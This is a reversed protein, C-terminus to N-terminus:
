HIVNAFPDTTGLGGGSNGTFGTSSNGTMLTGLRNGSVVSVASTCGAFSNGVILSNPQVAQVGIACSRIANGEIHARINCVIGVSGATATSRHVTNDKAMGNVSLGITNNFATCGTITGPGVSIGTANDSATCGSISGTGVSFGTGGNGAATSATVSADSTDLGDGGNGNFVCAHVMSAGNLSSIFLGTSQNGQFTCGTANCDGAKAGYGGNDNCQLNDLRVGQPAPPQIVGLDLGDGGFTRITGNRVAISLRFTGATTIGDLSGAYGFLTCGNLDITVHSANIKIGNKGAGVGTLGTLYYSGPSSIIYLNDADGPTNQSNIAIRPEVEQLTKMTGTVPGAPPTLPGALAGAALALLAVSPLLRASLRSM